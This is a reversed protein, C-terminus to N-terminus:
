KKGVAVTLRVQLSNRLVWVVLTQGVEKQLMVSAFGIQNGVRQGDISLIVDGVRMGGKAATSDERVSTVLAGGGLYDKCYIGISPHQVEHSPSKFGEVVRRM